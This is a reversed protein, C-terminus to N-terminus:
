KRPVRRTRKRRHRRHHNRTGGQLAPMDSLGADRLKEHCEQLDDHFRALTENLQANRALLEDRENEVEACKNALTENALQLMRSSPPPPPRPAGSM